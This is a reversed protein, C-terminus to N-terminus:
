LFKAVHQNHHDRHLKSPEVWNNHKTYLRCLLQVMFVSNKKNLGFM